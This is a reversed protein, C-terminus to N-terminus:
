LEWVHKEQCECPEEGNYIDCYVSMILSNFQLKFSLWNNEFQIIVICKICPDAYNDSRIYSEIMTGTPENKLYNSGFLIWNIAIQDNNPYNNIFDQVNNYLPITLFEDADLSTFTVWLLQTVLHLTADTM